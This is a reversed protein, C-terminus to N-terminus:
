HAQKLQAYLDLVSALTKNLFGVLEIRDKEPLSMKTFHMKTKM